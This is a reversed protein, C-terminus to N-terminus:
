GQIKPGWREIELCMPLWSTAIESVSVFFSMWKVLKALADRERNNNKLM